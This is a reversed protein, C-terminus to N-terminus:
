GRKETLDDLLQKRRRRRRGKMKIRREIKVEIVNDNWPLIFHMTLNGNADYTPSTCNFHM